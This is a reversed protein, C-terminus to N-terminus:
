RGIVFQKKMRKGNVDIMMVYIGSALNNINFSSTNLPITYRGKPKLGASFNGVRQGQINWISITVNGTEPIEYAVVSSGNAPNPYIIMSRDTFGPRLDDVSTISQGTIDKNTYV